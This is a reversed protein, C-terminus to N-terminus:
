LGEVIRKAEVLTAGTLHKYRSIAQTTKGARALELVEDPVGGGTGAPEDSGAISPGVSGPFPPASLGLHDSLLKVQAELIEFRRALQADDM